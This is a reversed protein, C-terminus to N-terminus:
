NRKLAKLKNIDRIRSLLKNLLKTSMNIVSKKYLVMECGKIFFKRKGRTNYNHVQFNHKPDGDMETTFCLVELIYRCAVTLIKYQKFLYRGSVCFVWVSVIIGLSLEAQKAILATLGNKDESNKFHNIMGIEV